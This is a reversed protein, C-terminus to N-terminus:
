CITAKFSEYVEEYIFSKPSGTDVLFHVNKTKAQDQSTYFCFNQSSSWIYNIGKLKREIGTYLSDSLYKIKNKLFKKIYNKLAFM